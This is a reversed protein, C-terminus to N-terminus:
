PTGSDNSWCIPMRVSIFDPMPGGALQAEIEKAIKEALSDYFTKKPKPRSVTEWIGAGILVGAVLAMTATACASLGLASIKLM